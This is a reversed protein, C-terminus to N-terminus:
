PLEDELPPPKRWFRMAYYVPVGSLISLVSYLSVLPREICVRITLAFTPIIFLAPTLPYGPTSFPRPENARKSRLVYVASVALMSFLALGVSAYVVINEFSGTWLLLLSWGVQAITAIAPTGTRFWLRGAIAPFHGARAMAYTVRPGTLVYASLSALLTLGIAISLPEAVHVGLLRKAAIEAIPAVADPGESAMLQKVEKASLALAYVVNLGLYLVIVASTGILIARPLVRGPDRVEGALYSAANWGTYGYSIFVLSFLMAGAVKLDIAPVDRLNGFGHRGAVLGAALLLVLTMVKVLTIGAQVRVTQARGSIHVVAFVLTALTALGKTALSSTTGHLDLPALLYAASAFASAAMPAAFGVLFSVWGSLFAALPGYSELLFVYDGGSRPISASLEAITLAGCLAVVGGFLWLLLMLQNSGVAAVTFGSTTLVGVGVMSSVVVFVATALGFGTPLADSAVERPEAEATGTGSM